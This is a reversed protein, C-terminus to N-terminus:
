KQCSPCYFTSRGSQKIQKIPHKCRECPQGEKGYVSFHHQFYGTEGDAAVFDKLSSGGAKIADQLVQKISVVLGDAEKQTLKGAHRLPSIGARFLSESAYINGVGVILSANMLLLKIPTKRKRTLAYLAAGNFSNELPELGLNKLLPHTQWADQRTLDVLGFRRPDNFVIEKGQGVDFIVHDHKQPKTGADRLFIRGSMGLHLLIVIGDELTILIYKARRQIAMVKKGAVQAAFGQPFPIRLDPRRLTVHTIRQGEMMGSLGRCVTEVEPLEPM